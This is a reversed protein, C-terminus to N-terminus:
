KIRRIVRVQISHLRPANIGERLFRVSRPVTLENPVIDREPSSESVTVHYQNNYVTISHKGTPSYGGSILPKCM